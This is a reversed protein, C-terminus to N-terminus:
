YFYGLLFIFDLDNQNDLLQKYIKLSDIENKNFYDIINQGITTTEKKETIMFVFEILKNVVNPDEKEPLINTNISLYQNM